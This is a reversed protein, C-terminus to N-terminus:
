QSPLLRASLIHTYQTQAEYHDLTRPLFKSPSEPKSGLLTHVAKWRLPNMHMIRMEDVIIQALLKYRTLM